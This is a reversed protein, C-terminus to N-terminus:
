SARRLTIVTIEAPRPLRMRPGWTGTGRSVYLTMEGVQYRGEMYPYQLGTLYNFPWIQGAHTHGSLMLDVGAAAAEEVRWPSHSLLITFGPPRGALTAPLPDGPDGFQRRATLDDVGALVVGPVLEAWGDRLVHFGAQRLVEVSAELGAYYEHNGTVAWVGLPATFGQLEPLAQAVRRANGDVLDGTIVLAAPELDAVQAQIKKLWRSNLLAGVHLDSLQVLRLGDRDPAIGRSTITVEEVVPARTGQVLAIAALLLAGGVAAARAPVGATPWLWGFGTLLDAVLIGVVLFFLTGLWAAGIWEMPHALTVHGRRELVRAVPYALWLLAFVALALRHALPSDLGPLRWLRALVYAHMATWISLVTVFFV